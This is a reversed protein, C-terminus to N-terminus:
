LLNLPQENFEGGNPKPHLILKESIIRKLEIRSDKSNCQSGSDAFGELIRTCIVSVTLSILWNVYMKIFQDQMSRLLMARKDKVSGDTTNVIKIEAKIWKVDNTLELPIFRLLLQEEVDSQSQCGNEVYRRLVAYMDHWQRLILDQLQTSITGSNTSGDPSTTREKWLRARSCVEAVAERTTYWSDLIIGIGSIAEKWKKFQDPFQGLAHSFALSDRVDLGPKALYQRDLSSLREKMFRLRPPLLARL